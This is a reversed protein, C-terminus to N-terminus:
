RVIVPVSRVAGPAGSTGDIVQLNLTLRGPRDPTFEVDQATGPGVRACAPGPRVREPPLSAGDRAVLSWTALAAGEEVLWCVPGLLALPGAPGGAGPLLGATDGEADRGPGVGPGARAGAPGGRAAVLEPSEELRIIQLDDATIGIFRFRYTVGVELEVPPPADSGNVWAPREGGIVNGPGPESVVFVRDQERDWSEGPELVLFPGYLGSVLEHEHENHIHYFFTGARPPTIRVAFSDGPAVPPAVREPVGSWGPVGDFYSELELGHWHVGVPRTSRNLVVIETPEDRTLVLPSGPILISDPAPEAEGEQLVFGFGPRDGFVGARENVFLRLTRAPPPRPEAVRDPAPEVTVGMVLGAMAHEATHAHPPEARGPAGPMRDLRQKATMHRVLHCHFIWNGPEEPVWELMISGGLPVVETVALPREDPPLIVDAMEMGRSLVRFYFGHLHMLHPDNSPNIVRWRVREGETVVLRETHPWSLGNMTNLEFFGDAAEPMRELGQTWRNLVFIRDDAVEGLPDIVLAGALSGDATSPQWPPGRPFPYSAYYHTGPATATFRFERTTGPAVPVLELQEVPRAELGRVWQTDPLANRITVRLETGVPVRILPGPVQPLVAEQTAAGGSTGEGPTGEGPAAEEAFARVRIACGEPGDPYWAGETMVLSATLVGDRLEGARTRNDNPAVRPGEPAPLHGCPDATRDAAQDRELGAEIRARVEDLLATVDEHTRGPANNFPVVPDVSWSWGMPSAAAIVIEYAGPPSGSRTQERLETIALILACRLTYRGPSQPCAGGPDHPDWTGPSSLLEAVRDVLVLDLEDYIFEPRECDACDVDPVADGAAVAAVWDRLRVDGVRYRYFSPQQLMTHSFGGVTFGRFEPIRERIAARNARILALVDPDPRGARELYFRQALDFAHDVQHLRLNEAALAATIFTGPVGGGIETEEWGPHRRVVEPFGWRSPDAGGMAEGGVGGNDDGVGVVRAAPYRRALLSGYFPVAHNGASSGAVFIEGPAELNERIWELAALANVQGRHHVTFERRSGEDGELVYVADRDGLHVDGTCVPVTVMTHDRFPNEPHALDLIGSMTEPSRTAVQIYIGSGEECGEADWCGGGGHFYVLLRDRAGPRVYFMYEDGHACVTEGVPWITNWGPSLDAFAPPVDQAPAPAPAPHPDAGAPIVFPVEPLRDVCSDAPVGSPDDLFGLLTAVCEAPLEHGRGPMELVHAKALGAAYAHAYAPPTVPDHEGVFLLIPVDSEVAPLPPAQGLGLGKCRARTSMRFPDDDPRPEASPDFRRAWNGLLRCRAAWTAGTLRDGGSGLRQIWEAAPGTDGRVTERVLFPVAALTARDYLMSVVMLRLTPGDLGFAGELEGDTGDLPIILPERTLRHFLTQYDAAPDPFAEGCGADRRCYEWALAMAEAVPNAELDGLGPPVPGMVAAARLGPPDLRLVERLVATGFSAGTVSWSEYGLAEVLAVVDRAMARHDYQALGVGHEEAWRRCAEADRRERAFLEAPALPEALAATRRSGADPCVREGYGMGRYDFLVLDRDERLPARVFEATRDLTPTPGGALYVLVDPRPNQSRARLVAVPIRVTRGEPDDWNEPVTVWGCDTDRMDEDPLEFPCPAALFRVPEVGGVAPGPGQAEGGGRLGVLALAAVAAFRLATPPVPFAGGPPRGRDRARKM